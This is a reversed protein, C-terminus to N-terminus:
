AMFFLGRQAIRAAPSKKQYRALCTESMFVATIVPAARPIPNAVVSM